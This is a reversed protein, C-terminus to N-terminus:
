AAAFARRYEMWEPQEIVEKLKPPPPDVFEKRVTLTFSKSFFLIEVKVTVRAEGWVRDPPGSEWTLGLYFEVSITILGLISLEGNARVYGTLSIKEEGNKMEMKFYIGAMVSVSGSAVGINMSACVGFELAAEMLELGDMGLEIAFFGGGGFIYVTLRFPSERECFHFRFRVPDGTFPLTLTAGLNINMLSFAGVAVDPLGINVTLLLGTPQIDISFMDGFKLFEKLENVFGLPGGFEVAKIKPDVNMKAGSDASFKVLDFSITIIEFLDIAFNKLYANVAFSPAKGTLPVTTIATLSFTDKKDGKVLFPGFSDVEPDWKFIIQIEKPIRNIAEEAAEAAKSAADIASEAEYIIQSLFAPVPSKPLAALLESTAQKGAKVLEDELTNKLTEMSLDFGTVAKVIDMLSIGGLLDVDLGAFFQAPDFAGKAMAALDGSVPGALRSLGSINMNPAALGGVKETGAGAGGFVMGVVSKLKAFVQGSNGNPDGAAGSFGNKIYTEPYEIPVAGGLGAIAKVSEMEVESEKMVPYFRPQDNQQLVLQSLESVPPVYATFTLTQVTFATDGSKKPSAFAITQGRMERRSRDTKSGLNATAAALTAPDYAVSNEIFIAPSTFEINRGEWDSGILHFQFPKASVNPWFASQGKNSGNVVVADSSPEGLNPTVLTTIRLRRFPFDRADNKQGFAPYEKEPQRVVIYMRQRLYATMYNGTTHFKRETVKILSARHGFPFLFGKYVVRVYHDRGMTARHRWEEVSLPPNAIPVDWGGRVNMWAGLSSLMLRDVRVVREDTDPLAFDSTLKVLEDRDFADLSMRFPNRISSEISIPDSPNYHPAHGGKVYDPSWVARLTRYYDSDEDVWAKNKSSRMVGLRTHWLETRESSGNTAPNTTPLTVPGQLHAWGGFRNPSLILRYPTELATETLLPERIGFYAGLEASWSLGLDMSLYGYFEDDGGGKKRAKPKQATTAAAQQAKESNLGGSKAIENAVKQQMGDDIQVEANLKKKVSIANASKASRAKGKYTIQDFDKPFVTGAKVGGGGLLVQPPPPPPPLAVWPLSPELRSWDLLAELTYPITTIEKPILFALRSPGAIRAKVPPPTPPEGTGTPPYGADNAGIPSGDSKKAPAYNEENSTEFFAQEAINQPPFHVVLYAAKDGDARVLFNGSGERYNLALNVFEFRLVLLDKPRVVSVTLNAPFPNPNTPQVKDGDPTGPPLMKFKDANKAAEEMGKTGITIDGPKTIVPGKPVVFTTDPMLNLRSGEPLFSPDAIAGPMPAHFRRLAPAIEMREARGNAETIELPPLHEADAVELSVGDRHLWLPSQPYRGILAQHRTGDSGFAVAYAASRVPLQFPDGNRDVGFGTAVAISPGDGLHEALLAHRTNRTRSEGAEITLRDFTNQAAANWRIGIAIAPLFAWTRQGREVVLKTRRAVPEDILSPAAPDMLQLTLGDAMTHSEGETNFHNIEVVGDGRLALSWDPAFTAHAKGRLVAAADAIAQGEPFEVQSEARSMGLLWREFPFDAHFNGLEMRLTARCGFLGRRITLHLNAPLTTGPFRADHLGVTIAASTRTVSLKPSGGFRQTNIEWRVKGGLLFAVRKRGGVMELDGLLSPAVTGAAPAIGIAALGAMKVVQRRTVAPGGPRFLANGSFPAGGASHAAQTTRLTPLNLRIPKM